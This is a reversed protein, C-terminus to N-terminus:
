GYDPQDLAIEQAARVMGGEPSLIGTYPVSTTGGLDRVALRAYSGSGSLCGERKPRPEFTVKFNREAWRALAREGSPLTTYHYTHDTGRKGCKPCPRPGLMGPWYTHCRRCASHYSISQKLGFFRRSQVDVGFTFDRRDWQEFAREISLRYAGAERRGIGRARMDDCGAVDNRWYMGPKLFFVGTPADKIEWGGLPKGLDSTGTDRPLPMPIRESSILGDTALALVNWPDRALRIGDLLQVRTHSTTLGAWCWDTYRGGGGIRQATRGYGANLGLKLTLGAGEKGWALRQRYTEPVFAFPQHDCGSRWCWADVIEVLSPWGTSAAFVEDRWAWGDFNVGFCISGKEDRCPLPGWAIDLRQSESVDGVRFRCVAADAREVDALLHDVRAREWRGGCDPSFCPLSVQAYPYASSIDANYCPTVIRGIVSNEFRGGFYASLIANRLHPDLQDIPAGRYTDVGHSKLLAGATSGAGHFRQLHLGVDDHAAILKRMLQALLHCEDRCYAQIQMTDVNAFDGRQDKMVQLREWQETTGVKWNKLAQVFSCGFFRFCDWVVTTAKLKRNRSGSRSVTLCGNFWDLTYPSNAIHVPLTRTAGKPGGCVPCEAFTPSFGFSGRKTKRCEKSKCYAVQRIDPRMLMYIDTPDLERLMMTTDYGFSFGFTLADQPLSALFDLCTSVSLGDPNAAEGIVRGHEDVAALYTYIHSGDPLDSGEGDVGIIVKSESSDAV